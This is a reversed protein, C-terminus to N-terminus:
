ECHVMKLAMLEEAVSSLQYKNLKHPRTSFIAVVRKRTQTVPHTTELLSDNIDVDDRSIRKTGRKEASHIAQTIFDIVRRTFLNKQIPWTLRMPEIYSGTERNYRELYM